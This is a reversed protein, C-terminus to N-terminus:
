IQRHKVSVSIWVPRLKYKNVWDNYFPWHYNTNTKPNNWRPRSIVEADENHFIDATIGQRQATDEASSIIVVVASLRQSVM